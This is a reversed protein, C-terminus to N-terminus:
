YKKYFKGLINKNLSKPDELVNLKFLWKTEHYPLKSDCFELVELFYLEGNKIKAKVVDSSSKYKKWSVGKSFSKQGAYYSGDAFTIKYIFGIYDNLFITDQEIIDCFNNNSFIM